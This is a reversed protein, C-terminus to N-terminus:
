RLLLMKKTEVFRKNPYGVSVADIRYFYIGSSVNANWVVQNWGASQETNVLDAVTRGLVDYIILRVNSRAPLGYQITTSPNFPNPYNQELRFRDPGNHANHAVSTIVPLKFLYISLRPPDAIAALFNPGVKLFNVAYGFDINGLTGEAGNDALFRIIQSDNYLVPPLSKGGLIIFAGGEGTQSGTAPLRSYGKAGILLDDCGDQNLDTVAISQGFKNDIFQYTITSSDPTPLITTKNSYNEATYSNGPLIPGYMIYVKGCNNTSPFVGPLDFRAATLILDDIGDGNIDGSQAYAMEDAQFSGEFTTIFPHTQALDISDPLNTGGFIVWAKGRLNGAGIPFYPSIVVIDDYDDHNWNGSRVYTGAFDYIDAGKILVSWQTTAELTSPWSSRGYFIVVRGNTTSCNQVEGPASIIIDSFSDGNIDAVCVQKGFAERSCGTFGAFSIITNALQQITYTGTVPLSSGGLIIFAQGEGCCGRVDGIILDDVGDGNVDGSAFSEGLFGPTSSTIILQSGTEPDYLPLDFDTQNFYIFVKNSGSISTVYDTIGNGDLDLALIPKEACSVADNLLFPKYARMISTQQNLRLDFVIPQPFLLLPHFFDVLFTCLFVHLFTNALRHIGLFSSQRTVMTLKREKTKYLSNGNVIRNNTKLELYILSM